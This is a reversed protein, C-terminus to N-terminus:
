QRLLIGMRFKLLLVLSVLVLHLLCVVLLLLLPFFSELLFCKIALRVLISLYLDLKCVNLKGKLLQPNLLKGRAVAVSSAGFCRRKSM